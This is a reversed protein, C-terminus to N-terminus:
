FVDSGKKQKLFNEKKNITVNNIGSVQWNPNENSVKKLSEGVSIHIFVDSPDETELVNTKTSGRLGSLKGAPRGMQGRKMDKSTFQSTSPRFENADLSSM